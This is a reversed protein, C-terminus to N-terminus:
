AKDDRTIREGIEALDEDGWPMDVAVLWWRGAWSLACQWEPVFAPVVSRRVWYWGDERTVETKGLMQESNAM